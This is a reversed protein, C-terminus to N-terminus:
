AAARVCKAAAYAACETRIGADVADYDTEPVDLCDWFTETIGEAILVVKNPHPTGFQGSVAKLTASLILGISQGHAYCSEYTATDFPM